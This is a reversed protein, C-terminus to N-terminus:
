FRPSPVRQKNLQYTMINLANYDINFMVFSFLYNKLILYFVSYVLNKRLENSNLLGKLM